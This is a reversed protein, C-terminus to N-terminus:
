KKEPFADYVNVSKKNSNKRKYERIDNGSILVGDVDLFVVYM